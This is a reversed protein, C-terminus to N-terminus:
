KELLFYLLVPNEKGEKEFSGMLYFNTCAAQDIYPCEIQLTKKAFDQRYNEDAAGSIGVHYKLTIDDRNNLFHRFVDSWERRENIEKTAVKAFITSFVTSDTLDMALPLDVVAVIHLNKYDNTMSM